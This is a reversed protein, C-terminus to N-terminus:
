LCRPPPAATGEHAQSRRRHLGEGQPQRTLKRFLQSHGRPRPLLSSTWEVTTHLLRPQLWRRFQANIDQLVVAALKKFKVLAFDPEVGTTDCDM